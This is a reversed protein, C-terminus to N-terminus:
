SILDSPLPMKVSYGNHYAYLYGDALRRDYGLEKVLWDRYTITGPECPPIAHRVERIKGQKSSGHRFTDLPMRLVPDPHHKTQNGRGFGSALGIMAAIFGRYTNGGKM